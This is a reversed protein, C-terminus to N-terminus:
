EIYGLNRLTVVAGLALFFVGSLALGVRILWGPRIERPLLTLNM